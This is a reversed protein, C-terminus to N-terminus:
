MVNCCPLSCNQYNERKDELFDDYRLRYRSFPLPNRVELLQNTQLEHRHNCGTTVTNCVDAYTLGILGSIPSWKALISSDMFSAWLFKTVKLGMEGKDAKTRM